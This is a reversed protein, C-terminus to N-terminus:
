DNSIDFGRSNLDDIAKQIAIMAPLTQDNVEQNFRQIAELNGKETAEVFAGFATAFSRFGKALRDHVDEIEKPPNVKDLRDAADRINRQGTRIVDAADKLSSPNRLKPSSFTTTLTTTLQNGILNVTQEYQAKTLRSGGGCAGALLAVVTVPVLARMLQRM